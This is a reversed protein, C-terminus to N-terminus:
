RWRRGFRLPINTIVSGTNYSRQEDAKANNIAARFETGYKAKALAPNSWPQGPINLLYETAGDALAYEWKTLLDDPLSVATRIPTCQAVVVAGYAGDPTPHLAVVGEPVYDYTMPRGPRDQLRWSTSASPLIDWQNLSGTELTSMVIRRVGIIELSADGTDLLLPELKEDAVTEFLAERRLWRTQTCFQRAARIYAQVLTPQPCRRVVQQVDQLLDVIDM